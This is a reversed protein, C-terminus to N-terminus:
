TGAVANLHSKLANIRRGLVKLENERDADISQMGSRGNTSSRSSNRPAGRFQVCPRGTECVTAQFIGDQRTLADAKRAYADQM